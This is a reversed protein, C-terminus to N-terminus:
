CGDLFTGFKLKKSLIIPFAVFTSFYTRFNQGNGIMHYLETVVPSKV